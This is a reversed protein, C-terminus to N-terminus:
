SAIDEDVIIQRRLMAARFKGLLLDTLSIKSSCVHEIDRPGFLLILAEPMRSRAEDGTNSTFGGMCVFVGRTGPRATVRARLDNLDRPQAPSKEWKCSVVFYDFGRYFILDNEEGPNKVNREVEWGERLAITELLRELAPGRAQPTMQGGSKLENLRDNIQHSERWLRVIEVGTATIKFKRTSTSKLADLCELIEKNMLFDAETAGLIAVVSDWSIDGLNGESERVKALENLFAMRFNQHRYAIDTQALGNKEAFIV